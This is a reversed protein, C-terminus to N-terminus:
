AKHQPGGELKGRLKPPYKLPRDRGTSKRAILWLGVTVPGHLHRSLWLGVM